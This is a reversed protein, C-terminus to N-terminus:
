KEYKRLTNKLDETFEQRLQEPQLIELSDMFQQALFKAGTKSTSVNFVYYDDQPYMFLETGFIDIIQDIIREECRFTVRIMEGAYMFLKNRAYEYADKTEKLPMVHEDVLTAKSIRDIRYHIFQGPHHRSTVIMYARSDAYVIYRPEVVYPEKRRPVM